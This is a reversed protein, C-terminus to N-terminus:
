PTQITAPKRALVFLHGAGPPSDGLSDTIFDHWVVEFGTARLLGLNTPADFHSWYM